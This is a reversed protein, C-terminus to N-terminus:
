SAALAIAVTTDVPTTGNCVATITAPQKLKTPAIAPVATALVIAEPNALGATTLWVTTSAASSPAQIQFKSVQHHPMGELEECASIPPNPPATTACAPMEANLHCASTCFTSTGSTSEGVKPKMTANKMITPSVQIARFKRGPVTRTAERLICSSEAQPM